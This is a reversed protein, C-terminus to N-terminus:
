QYLVVMCREDSMKPVHIPVVIQQWQALTALEDTPVKGKMACLVGENLLPEAATVFDTLSAFARSIIVNFSEQFDEIRSAVPVVNALKLEGVMQKIFRIKKGNSDLAVIQWEPRMIAIIVAPLGAGTGIDLLKVETINKYKLANDLALIIALCDFIHKILAENPNTIATLNYAKTWLLLGDLYALLQGIKDADISLQLQKCAEIIEAQFQNAYSSIKHYTSM